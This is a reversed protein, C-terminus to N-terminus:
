DFTAVCFIPLFCVEEGIEKIREVNRGILSVTVGKQLLPYSGVRIGESQLRKHLSTLYPAINSEPLSICLTLFVSVALILLLAFKTFILHRFPRESPPPLPLFPTLNDLLRQFLGPIGPLICLKGQLRVVPQCLVILILFLTRIPSLSVVWLDKHVYLVEAKAPFLAMRDRAVRQEASQNQIDPRHKSM